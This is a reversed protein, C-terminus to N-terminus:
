GEDSLRANEVDDEAEHSVILRDAKGVWIAVAAQVYRYLLLAMSVPLVFYPILRPIKEYEDGDNFVDEIFKMFGPVPIDNTEYWGQGRFKEVFGTPFWRGETPPLNAFISWYDWAGKLLLFSFVICSAVAVLGFIRRVPESFLNILVDVGLHANKKVAYSAGLLVLWAFCYLSFELAWLINSNFGYRAIVNAFSIITMLALLLAILNEEIKDVFGSM